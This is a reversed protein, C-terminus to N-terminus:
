LVGIAYGCVMIRIAAHPGLLRSVMRVLKEKRGLWIGKKDLKQFCTRIDEKPVYRAGRNRAMTGLFIMYEYPLFRAVVKSEPSGDYMKDIWLEFFRLYDDVRKQDIACHTVSRPNEIYRYHRIPRYTCTRASFLLRFCWDLDEYYHGSEFPVRLALDRSIIKDCPTAPMKSFQTYRECAEVHSLVETGLKSESGCSFHSKETGDRHCNIGDVFLLEPSCDKLVKAAADLSGSYLADDADVFVIYQGHALAVGRNRASAAGGNEQHCALVIEPYQAAYQQCIAFSDDTSGDDILVIEYSCANSLISALCRVITRGANYVPVVVSFLRSSDGREMLTNQVSVGM